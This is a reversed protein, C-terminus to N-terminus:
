LAGRGSIQLYRSVAAARSPAHLKRRISMIHTKITSEGLVLRDAIQKNRAGTVMLELVERERATFLLDVRHGPQAALTVASRRREDLNVVSDCLEDILTRTGEFAALTHARQEVLREQLVLSEFILGLGEGFLWLHDRDAVTLARGSAHRDGYVFGITRDVPILPTAVFTCDRGPPLLTAYPGEPLVADVVLAAVHRRLLETELLGHDLPVPPADLLEREPGNGAPPPHLAEASWTSGDLRAILVRDLDCCACAAAAARQQLDEITTADRLETLAQNIETLTAFQAEAERERAAQLAASVAILRDALDAVSSGGPAPKQLAALLEAHSGALAAVATDPDVAASM